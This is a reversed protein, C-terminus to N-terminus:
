ITKFFLENFCIVHIYYISLKLLKLFSNKEERVKILEHIKDLWFM